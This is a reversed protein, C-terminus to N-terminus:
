PAFSEVILVRNKVTTAAIATGKFQVSITYTGAAVRVLIPTASFAQGTTIPVAADGAPSASGGGLGPPTSSPNTTLVEYFVASSHSAEQVPLATAANYAKLQNAGIFLAARSTAAGLWLAEYTIKLYGNAVVVVNAVQDPTTLKVYSTSVTAEATAIASVGRGIQAGNNLGLRQLLANNLQTENVNNIATQADTLITNVQNVDEPSGPVLATFTFQAM